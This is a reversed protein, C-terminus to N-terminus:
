DELSDFAAWENDIVAHLKGNCVAIPEGVSPFNAQLNETPVENAPVSSRITGVYAEPAPDGPIPQGISSYCTDNYMLLYISKEEGATCATCLLMLLLILVLLKKM